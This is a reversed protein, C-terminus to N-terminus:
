QLTRRFDNSSRAEFRALGLREHRLHAPPHGRGGSRNAGLHGAREIGNAPTSGQGSTRTATSALTVAASERRKYAPARGTPRARASGRQPRRGTPVPLARDMSRDADTRARRARRRTAARPDRAPVPARLVESEVAGDDVILNGLGDSADAVEEHVDAAPAGRLDKQVRERGM